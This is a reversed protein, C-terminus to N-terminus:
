RCVLPQVIEVKKMGVSIKSMTGLGMKVEMVANMYVNFLRPSM